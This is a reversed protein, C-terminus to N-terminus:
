EETGRIRPWNAAGVLDKLRAIRGTLGNVKLLAFPTLGDDFSAARDESGVCM